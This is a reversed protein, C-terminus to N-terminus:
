VMKDVFSHISKNSSIMFQIMLQLVIRFYILDRSINVHFVEIQSLYDQTIHINHSLPRIAYWVNLVIDLRTDPHQYNSINQRAVPVRVHSLHEDLPEKSRKGRFTSWCSMKWATEDYHSNRHKNENIKINKHENWRFVSVKM